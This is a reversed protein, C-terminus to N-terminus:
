VCRSTYLLCRVLDVVGHAVADADFLAGQLAKGADDLRDVRFVARYLHFDGQEPPVGGGLQLQRKYVDLHTYSVTELSGKKFQQIYKADM